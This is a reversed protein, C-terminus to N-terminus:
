GIGEIQLQADLIGGAPLRPSASRAPSPLFLLTLVLGSPLIIKSCIKYLRILRHM